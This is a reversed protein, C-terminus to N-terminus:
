AYLQVETCVAFDWGQAHAYRRARALRRRVQHNSPLKLVWAAKVEILTKSGDEFSVIFDPLFCGSADRLSEEFAYSVVDPSAELIEIARREFSSRTLVEARTGKRLTVRESKGRVWKSPEAKMRAAQAESRRRREVKSRHFRLLHEREAPRLWRDKAARVIRAKVEPRAHAARLAEREVESRERGRHFDFKGAKWDRELQDSLWPKLEGKRARATRAASARRNDRSAENWTARTGRQIAALSLGTIGCIDLWPVGASHLETIIDRRKERVWKLDRPLRGKKSFLDASIGYKVLLPKLQPHTQM